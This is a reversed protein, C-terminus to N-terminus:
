GDVVAGEPKVEKADDPETNPWDVATLAVVALSTVDAVEVTAVVVVPEDRKPAELEINPLAVVVVVAPLPPRKPLEEVVVVVAPLPPRNPLEVVVVVPLPPRKPLEVVDVVVAPLPPRNPLAGVVVVPLPPRNPFASVVVVVPLM